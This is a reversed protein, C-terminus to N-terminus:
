VGDTQTEGEFHSVWTECVYLFVILIVTKHIKIKLKKYSVPACIKSQIIAFMGQIDNARSKM